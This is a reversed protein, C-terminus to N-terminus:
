QGPECRVVAEVCRIMLERFGNVTADNNHADIVYRAQDLNVPAFGQDIMRPLERDLLQSIQIRVNEDLTDSDKKELAHHLAILIRCDEIGERVAEWRRSTVPKTKGTYVLPYEAKVRGWMDEGINYSWYGIGTAGHRLAFLAATRFQGVININKINPGTPRAYIYACDYSWLMKATSRMVRMEPYDRALSYVAPVWIDTYDAVLDYMPMEGEGDIYNLISPNIERVMKSFRATTEVAKWGQGMPEDIPYLGFHNTDIGRSALHEVLQALYAKLRPQYTDTELEVGTGPIGSLLVIVDHGLLPELFVDLDAFDVETLMGSADYQPKGHPGIFVNNGHALLDEVVPKSLSAWACLRFDGDAAMQFPLVHMAVVATSEPPSVAMPSTSAEIVGAGNLTQVRVTLPHEGPNLGKADLDLWIERTSLSPVNITASNDLEPLPDWSPDGESTAVEVSRHVSVKPGGEPTEVLIRAEVPRDLINFLCLAVPEHEDPVVTRELKLSTAPTDPLQDTVRRNEWRTGEFMLLGPAPDLQSAAEVIKAIKTDREARAVLAAMRDVVEEESAGRMGALRAQLESVDSLDQALSSAERTLAAASSPIATKVDNSAAKLAEVAQLAMGRENAFLEIAIQRTGSVLETGKSDKLSWTFAYTGPWLANVPLLLEGQPAFVKSVATLVTGGPTVCTATADLVNTSSAPSSITFRIDTQATICDASLNTPLMQVAEAVPPAFWTGTKQENGRYATWNTLADTKARTSLCFVRGSEGGTIAMELEPAGPDINGFAPTVNITRNDFQMDFIFNGSKDLVLLRGKQTCVVYELSGDGNVDAIAGAALSRGQMDIEWLRAGSENFRYIVGLQTVAFVDTLGDRDIDGASLGSAVPGRVSYDWVLRGLADLCVVRGENSAAVVRRSGDSVSFMIPSSTAWTESSGGLPYTWLASGDSALAHVLGATTVVVIEARGDGDLDGAAPSAPMGTVSSQWRLNGDLAAFAWITGKEDTQIVEPSGDADIDVVVPASWSSPGSLNAQWVVDGSGDLCTFLGSTDAAYILATGSERKLVAPYTMFRGKTRWRWAEKGSANFVIIEERGAVIVEDTRDGHIDAVTAASETFTKSEATWFVEIDPPNEAAVVFTRPFLVVAISFLLYVRSFKGTKRPM